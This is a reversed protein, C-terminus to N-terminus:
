RRYRRELDRPHPSAPRRWRDDGTGAGAHGTWRSDCGSVPPEDGSRPLPVVHDGIAVAVFRRDVPRRQDLEQARTVSQDEGGSSRVAAASDGTVASEVLSPCTTMASSGALAFLPVEAVVRGGGGAHERVLRVPWRNLRCHLRPPRGGRPPRLGRRSRGSSRRRGRVPRYRPWPPGPCTGRGGARRVTPGM